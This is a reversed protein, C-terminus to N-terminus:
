KGHESSASSSSTTSSAPTTTTTSKSDDAKEEAGVLADRGTLDHEHVAVSAEQAFLPDTTPIETELVYDSVFSDNIEKKSDM